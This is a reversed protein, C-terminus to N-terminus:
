KFSIFRDGPVTTIESSFNIESFTILSPGDEMSQALFVYYNGSGTWDENGIRESVANKLRISVANNEIKGIGGAPSEEETGLYVLVFGATLNLSDLGTIILKKGASDPDVKPFAAPSKCLNTM